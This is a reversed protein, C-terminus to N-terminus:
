RSLDALSHSSSHLFGRLYAAELDLNALHPYKQQWVIWGERLTQELCAAAIDLLEISYRELEQYDREVVTAANADVEPEWAIGPIAELDSQVADQILERCVKPHAFSDRFTLLRDVIRSIDQYQKIGNDLQLFRRVAKHREALPQRALAVNRRQNPQKWTSCLKEGLHDVVGEFMFATFVRATILAYYSGTQVSAASRMAWRVTNRAVAPTSLTKEVTRKIM